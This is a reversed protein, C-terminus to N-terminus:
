CQMWGHMWASTDRAVITNGSTPIDLIGLEVPLAEGDGIRINEDFRVLGKM